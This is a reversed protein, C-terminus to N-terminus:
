YRLLAGIGVQQLRPNDDVVEIEGGEEIVKTVAAEAADPIEVFTGGCFPCTELSQTTLYGCRDCRYGPAHFHRDIVLIRIRGEHAASLTEDLGVVGEGGKAAATFVAEVVTAEREREVEQLLALTRERIEPEPANPDLRLDGIVKEQLARPLLDRFQSVTPEAGALILRQPKHRRCFRDTAQAAERLNRMATEEERRSSIPAGGWRSAGGSSGRGRKLKRVEEGEFREEAVLEGLHFLLLRVGKREVIAVAYRGYTDMLAALPSLYPRRAVTVGSAVPVALVYDRWFDAATCSFVVVGRGSWDYQHEFYRQVAVVDEPSAEGEAQKLMQRLSLLYEESTRQTPDVNLYVSLIPTETQIKALERLEREDIAM